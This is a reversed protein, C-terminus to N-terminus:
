DGGSHRQHSYEVEDQCLVNYITGLYKYQYTSCSFCMSYLRKPSSIARRGTFQETDFLGFIASKAFARRTGLNM